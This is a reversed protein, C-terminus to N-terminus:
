ERCPIGAVKMQCFDTPGVSPWGIAFSVVDMRFIGCDRCGFNAQRRVPEPLAALQRRFGATTSPSPNSRKRPALPRPFFVPRSREPVIRPESPLALRPPPRHASDRGDRCVNSCCFEDQLRNLVMFHVLCGSFLEALSHKEGTECSRSLSKMLDM